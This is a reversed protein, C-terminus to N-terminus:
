NVFTHLYKKIKIYIHLFQTFLTNNTKNQKTTFHGCMNDTLGDFLPNIIQSFNKYKYYSTDQFRYTSTYYPLRSQLVSAHKAHERERILYFSTVSLYCLTQFNTTLMSSLRQQQTKKRILTIKIWSM